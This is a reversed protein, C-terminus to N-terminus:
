VCQVACTSHGGGFLLMHRLLRYRSRSTGTITHIRQTNETPLTSVTASQSCVGKPTFFFRGLCVPDASACLALGPPSDKRTRWPSHTFASTAMLPQTGMVVGAARAPQELAPVTLGEIPEREKVDHTETELMCGRNEVM